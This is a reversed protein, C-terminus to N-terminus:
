PTENDNKVVVACLTSSSTSPLLFYGLYNWAPVCAVYLGEFGLLFFEIRCSSDLVSLFSGRSYRAHTFIQVSRSLRSHIAPGIGKTHRKRGGPRIYHVRELTSIYVCFSCDGHQIFDKMHRNKVGSISYERGSDKCQVSTHSTLFYVFYLRSGAEGVVLRFAM